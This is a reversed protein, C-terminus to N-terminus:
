PNEVFNSPWNTLWLIRHVFTSFVTDLSWQFLFPPKQLILLVFYHMSSPYSRRPALVRGVDM